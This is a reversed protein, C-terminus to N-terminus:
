VSELSESSTPSYCQLDQLLSARISVERQKTAHCKLTHFIVKDLFM